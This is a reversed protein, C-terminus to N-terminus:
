GRVGNGVVLEDTGDSALLETRGEDFEELTNDELATVDGGDSTEDVGIGTVRFEELANGQWPVSVVGPHTKVLESWGRVGKGWVWDLEPGGMLLPVATGEIFEDIVGVLLMFMEEAEAELM